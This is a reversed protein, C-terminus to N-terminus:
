DGAQKVLAPIIKDVPKKSVMALTDWFDDATANGGQIRLAAGAILAGRDFRLPMSLECFNM